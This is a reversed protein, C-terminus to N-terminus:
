EDGGGKEAQARASEIAAEAEMLADDPDQGLMRALRKTAVRYRGELLVAGPSRTVDQLLRNVRSKQKAIPQRCMRDTRPQIIGSTILSDLFAFWAEDDRQWENDNDLVDPTHFPSVYQHGGRALPFKVCYNHYREDLRPDTWHIVQWGKQQAELVANKWSGPDNSMGGAGPMLHLHTLSPYWRAREDNWDWRSQKFRYMFPANQQTGIKPLGSSLTQEARVVRQGWDAPSPKDTKQAALDVM